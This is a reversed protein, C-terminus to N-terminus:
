ISISTISRTLLLGLYFLLLGLTMKLDVDWVWKWHLGCEKDPTLKDLILHQIAVAAIVLMVFLMPFCIVLGAFALAPFSNVQASIVIARKRSISLIREAALAGLPISFAMLLFAIAAFGYLIEIKIVLAELFNLAAIV